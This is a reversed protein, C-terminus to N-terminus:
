DVGLPTALERLSPAKKYSEPLNPERGSPATVSPSQPLKWGMFFIIFTTLFPPNGKHSCLKQGIQQCTDRHAAM